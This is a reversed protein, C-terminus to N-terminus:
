DEKYNEEIERWMTLFQSFSTIHAIRHLKHTPESYAVRFLVDLEEDNKPECNLVFDTLDEYLEKM